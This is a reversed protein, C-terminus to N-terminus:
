SSRLLYKKLDKEYNVVKHRQHYLNFGEQILREKMESSGFVVKVTTSPETSQSKKFRVIEKPFLGSGNLYEEIEENEIALHVGFILVAQDVTNSDPLVPMLTFETSSWPQLLICYDHPTSGVVKVDGRGLVKIEKITANPKCSKILSAIQKPNSKVEHPINNKLIVPFNNVPNKATTATTTNNTTTTTTTTTANTLSAETTANKSSICIFNQKIAKSMEEVINILVTNHFDFGQPIAGNKVGGGGTTAVIKGSNYFVLHNGPVGCADTLDFQIGNEGQDKRKGGFETVADCATEIHEPSICLVLPPNKTKGSDVNWSHVYVDGGSTKKIKQIISKVRENTTSAETLEPPKKTTM